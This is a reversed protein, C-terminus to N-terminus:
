RQGNAIRAYGAIDDWHDQFSADGAVIRGIKHLIMDISERQTSSLPPQGRDYRAAVELDITLKLHQTCRAHDTFDGHSVQRSAVLDATEKSTTM